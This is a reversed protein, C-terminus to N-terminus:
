IRKSEQLTNHDTILHRYSTDDDQEDEEIDPIDRNNTLKTSAKRIYHVEPPQDPVTSSIRPIQITPTDPWDTNFHQSQVETDKTKTNNADITNNDPDQPQSTNTSTPQNDRDIDSNFESALLQM